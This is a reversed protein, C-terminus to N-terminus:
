EKAYEDHAPLEEPEEVMLAGYLQTLTSQVDVHLGVEKRVAGDRRDLFEKLAQVNGELIMALWRKAVVVGAFEGSLGQAVAINELEQDLLDVIMRKPRGKPNPSRCGAKWKHPEIAALSAARGAPKPKEELM